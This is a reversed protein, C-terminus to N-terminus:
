RQQTRVKYKNIIFAAKCIKTRKYIIKRLEYFDNSILAPSLMQYEHEIDGEFERIFDNQEFEIQEKKKIIDMATEEDHSVKHTNGM